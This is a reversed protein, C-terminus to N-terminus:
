DVYRPTWVRGTSTVRTSAAGVMVLCGMDVTEPDFEGLTTVSLSEQERGVHRAVVVVRDTPLVELLVNKALGLHDPRSASRPNYFALALDAQACARLREVVVDWPKLRDSLSILAHDAGLVAGALASAAHAATVGPVVHIPVAAYAPDSEAAEFVAAAMGFVGADGGSVVAVEHGARALDLAQRGRDVEVTNGSPLRTLGERQPVRAVYPAYGIVHDVHGLVDSAEPTVWADPGPGLGVVHVTGYATSGADNGAEAGLTAAPSDSADQSERQGVHQTTDVAGTARGAADARLGEGPVVVLSMYPVTDADVDALPLVRQRKGSAREVYIARDLLGAQRVAEVVGPFTQGLKMVIAADTDALRRALEPVPLTGPLITLTDEHRCLGTAVAATAASVSTVGPVVATPYLPSLRDHVYMFSGFFLPDGVALVVVTCGQRLHTELRDACDDYFAGLAAYYGAPDDAFGTTVPYRLEEEIVGPPLLDAVISRAMSQKGTGAHFAIVDAGRILEAARLTVLGPDGPGVGVGFLRGTHSPRIDNNSM